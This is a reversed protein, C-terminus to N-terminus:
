RRCAPENRTPCCGTGAAVFRRETCAADTGPGTACAAPKPQPEFPTAVTPKKPAHVTGM